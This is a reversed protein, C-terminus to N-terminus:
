STATRRSESPASSALQAGDATHQGGTGLLDCFRARSAPLRTDADPDPPPRAPPRRCARARARVARRPRRRAAYRGNPVAAWHVHTGASCATSSGSETLSSSPAHRPRGPIVGCRPDEAVARHGAGRDEDVAHEPCDSRHSGLKRAPATGARDSGHPTAAAQFTHLRGHRLRHCQVSTETASRFGKPVASVQRSRVCGYRTVTLDSGCTALLAAPRAPGDITSMRPSRM